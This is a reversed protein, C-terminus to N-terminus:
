VCRSTYLLCGTRHDRHHGSAGFTMNFAFEFVQDVYGNLNLVAVFEKRKTINFTNPSLYQLKNFM